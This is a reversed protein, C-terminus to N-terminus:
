QNGKPTPHTPLTTTAPHLDEEPGKPAIDALDEILCRDISPEVEKIESSRAARVPGALDAPRLASFTWCSLM